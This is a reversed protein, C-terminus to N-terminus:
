FELGAERAADALAKVKGHYTFGGRDFVVKRVNKELAQKAIQKGIEVAGSINARLAAGGSAAVTSAAVITCGSKGAGDDIVQAHIHRGSFNVALRPRETTGVVKKRLRLHLRQRASKRTIQAM